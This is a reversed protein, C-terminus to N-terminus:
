PAWIEAESAPPVRDCETAGSRMGLPGSSRPCRTSGPSRAVQLQFVPPEDKRTKLRTGGRRFQVAGSTELVCAPKRSRSPSLPWESISKLPLSGVAGGGHLVHEKVPAHPGCGSSLDLSPFAGQCVPSPSSQQMLLPLSHSAVHASSEENKSLLHRSNLQRILLSQPVAKTTQRWDLERM